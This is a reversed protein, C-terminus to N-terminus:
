RESPLLFFLVLFIFPFLLFLIGYLEVWARAPASFRERLVDVRIHNDSELAYSLGFLFGCSYIHWQIEEFEIRGEGFVYRLVVNLVIM